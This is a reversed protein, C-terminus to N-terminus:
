VLMKVIKRNNLTTNCNLEDVFEDDLGLILDSIDWTIHADNNQINGENYIQFIDNLLGSTDVNGVFSADVGGDSHSANHPTSTSQMSFSEEYHLWKTYSSWFEYLM